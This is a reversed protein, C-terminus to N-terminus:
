NKEIEKILKFLEEQANKDSPNESLKKLLQSLQNRNEKIKEVWEPEATVFMNKLEMFVDTELLNKKYVGYVHAAGSLAFVEGSIWSFARLDKETGNFNELFSDLIFIRKKFDGIISDRQAKYRVIEKHQKINLVISVVLLIVLAWIFLRNRM